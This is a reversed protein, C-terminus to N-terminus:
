KLDKKQLVYVSIGNIRGSQDKKFERGDKLKIYGEGSGMVGLRRRWAFPGSLDPTFRDSSSKWLDNQVRDGESKPVEAVMTMYASIM